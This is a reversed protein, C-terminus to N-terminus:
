EKKSLYCRDGLHKVHWENSIRENLKRVSAFREFWEAPFDFKLLKEHNQIIQIVGEASMYFFETDYVELEVLNPLLSTIELLQNETVKNIILKNLRRHNEFFKIWEENGNFEMDISELHPFSLKELSNPLPEFLQFNKVNEFCVNEDLSGFEHLTLNELNPLLKNIIKVYDAPFHWTSIIRIQPNKQLLNEIQKIQNKSNYYNVSVEVHELHYFECDFFSYDLDLWVSVYMQRLKPFLQNLPLMNASPVEEDISFHLKEVANFPMTFYEFTDTDIYNLNLSILSESMYKNVIENVFKSRDYLQDSEIKLKQIWKGAYKLVVEIWDSDPFEIYKEHQNIRFKEDTHHENAEIIRIEYDHYKEFFISEAIIKLNPHAAAMHILEPVDLHDFILFLVDFDLDTLKITDISNGNKYANAENFCINSM